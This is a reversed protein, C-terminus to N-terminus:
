VFFPWVYHLLYGSIMLAGFLLHVRITLLNAVIVDHSKEYHRRAVSVAKMALPLTALVTLSGLPMQKLIVMAVVWAYAAVVIIAFLDAARKRGTRVVLTKKGVAKDAAYDPIENIWLIATILLGVPLSAIIADPAFRQTQVYSSGLVMLPGFNLGVILEGVGRTALQSVYFYGSILGVVGLLLVGWGAVVSLAIGIISAIGFFSLAVFYASKPKILNELLVRSGGSIPSLGEVNIADCGSQFDFYDNFINTGLHLCMAGFLTLIFLVPNFARVSVWAVVAGLTVPVITGTLFPIRALRIWIMLSRLFGKDGSPISAVLAREREEGTRASLYSATKM